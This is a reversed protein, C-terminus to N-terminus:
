LWHLAMAVSLSLTAAAILIILWSQWNSHKSHKEQAESLFKLKDIIILDNYFPSESDIKEKAEEESLGLSKLQRLHKEMRTQDDPMEQDNIQV